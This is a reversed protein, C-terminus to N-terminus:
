SAISRSIVGRNHAPASTINWWGFDVDLHRILTMVTVSHTACSAPLLQQGSDQSIILALIIFFDTHDTL